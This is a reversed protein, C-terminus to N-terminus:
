TDEFSELQGLLLMSNEEYHAHFGVLSFEGSLYAGTGYKADRFGFLSNRHCNKNLHNKRKCVTLCKPMVKQLSFLREASIGLLSHVDGHLCYWLRRLYSYAEWVNSLRRQVHLLGLKDGQCLLVAWLAGGPGAVLM